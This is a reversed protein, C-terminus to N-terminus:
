VDLVEAIVSPAVAGERLVQWNRNEEYDTLDLVTSATGPLSGIDLEFGAKARIEGPVESLSRPDKGGALNASSVMMPVKLAALGQLEKSLTPVRVGLVDPTPGCALPYQHSRNSILLTVGGPLLATCITRLRPSLRPLHSLAVELSFFMVASPKRPPRHKAAYLKEIAAESEPDCALGYVTDTPVIVLAGARIKRELEAVQALSIM